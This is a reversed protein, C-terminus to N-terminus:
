YCRPLSQALAQCKHDWGACSLEPDWCDPQFRPPKTAQPEALEQQLQELERREGALRQREDRYEAERRQTEREWFEVGAQNGKEREMQRNCAETLQRMRDFDMTPSSPNMLQNLMQQVYAPDMLQDCEPGLAAAPTVCVLLGVLLLGTIKM